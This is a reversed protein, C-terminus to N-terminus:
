RYNREQKGERYSRQNRIYENSYKHDLIVNEVELPLSSLIEGRFLEFDGLHLWLNVDFAVITFGDNNRTAKSTLASAERRLSPDIRLTSSSKPSAELLFNILV